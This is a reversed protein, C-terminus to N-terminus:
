EAVEAAVAAALAAAVTSSLCSSPTRNMKKLLTLSKCTPLRTVITKKCEKGNVSLM